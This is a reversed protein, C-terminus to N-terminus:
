SGASVPPTAVSRASSARPVHTFVADYDTLGGMRNMPWVVAKAKGVVLDIPVSGNTGNELPADHYRSDSSDGRNDGMVWVRGEPVVIAFPKESPEQGPKVYAEDIAVGNVTLRGNADCCEVKDGPMGIIRKILHGESTDPLLGVFVLGDRVGNLFAGRNVPETEELWQGPDAFVIVDGRELDFVRPTLKSVIVRDGEMLTAQMSPSPIFFAQVLFTKVVFSLTLAMAIVIIIERVGAAVSAGFSREPTPNVTEREAARDSLSESRASDADPTRAM